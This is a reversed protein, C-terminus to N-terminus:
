SLFTLVLCFLPLYHFTPLQISGWGRVQAPVAVSDDDGGELVLLLNWSTEMGPLSSPFVCDGSQSADGHVM